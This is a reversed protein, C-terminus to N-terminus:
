PIGYLRFQSTAIFQGSSDLSLRIQTLAAPSAVLLVDLEMSAPNTDFFQTPSFCDGHARVTVGSNSYFPFRIVGTGWRGAAANAGPIYAIQNYGSTINRPDSLGFRIEVGNMLYNGGNSVGNMEVLMFDAYRDESALSSRSLYHLELTRYDQPISAFTVASADTGLTIEEILTPGGGEGAPGQPGQPGTLLDANDKVVQQVIALTQNTPPTSTALLVSLAIATDGDPIVIVAQYKDPLAVLIEIGTMLTVSAGGPAYVNALVVKSGSTSGPVAQFRVTGGLAVQGCNVLDISVERTAM